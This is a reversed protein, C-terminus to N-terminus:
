LLVARWWLFHTGPLMWDISSVNPVTYRWYLPSSQLPCHKFHQLLFDKYCFNPRKKFVRLNLFISYSFQAGDCFTHELFCEFSPLFTPFPTDGTCPVVKFPVTSLINYFFTKIAFTRDKKSCAEYEVWFQGHAQRSSLTDKACICSLSHNSPFYQPVNSWTSDHGKRPNSHLGKQQCCCTIFNM